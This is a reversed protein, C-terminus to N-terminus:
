VPSVIGIVEDSFTLENQKLAQVISYPAPDLQRAVYLSNGTSTFYFIM